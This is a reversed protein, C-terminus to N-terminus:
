SAEQQEVFATAARLTPFNVAGDYSKGVIFRTNNRYLWFMVKGGPKGLGLTIRRVKWSVGNVQTSWGLPGKTWVCRTRSM